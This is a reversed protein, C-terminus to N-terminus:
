LTNLEHKTRPSPGWLIVCGPFRYSAMVAWVFSIQRELNRARSQAIKVRWVIRTHLSSNRAAIHSTSALTHVNPPLDPTPVLCWEFLLRTRHSKTTPWWSQRTSRRRSIPPTITDFSSKIMDSLAAATGFLDTEITTQRRSLPM